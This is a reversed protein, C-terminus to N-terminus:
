RSGKMEFERMNRLGTNWAGLVKELEAIATRVLTGLEGGETAAGFGVM